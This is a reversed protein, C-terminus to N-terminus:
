LLGEDAFSYYGESTIIVHDLVKVDLLEGASKFDNTLRIDQESPKQNGSPHNHVLVLATALCKMATGFALRKDVVTSSIGGESLKFFGIIGNAKNLMIIFFYERLEMQSNTLKFIERAADEADKSRKISGESYSKKSYQVTIEHIHSSKRM